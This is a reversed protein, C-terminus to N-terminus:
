NYTYERHM